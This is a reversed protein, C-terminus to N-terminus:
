QFLGRIARIQADELATLAMAKNRGDEVHLEIYTALNLVQEQIFDIVTESPQGSATHGTKKDRVTFFRSRARERAETYGDGNGTM